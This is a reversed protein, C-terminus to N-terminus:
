KGGSRPAKSKLLEAYINSVEICPLSLPLSSPSILTIYLDLRVYIISFNLRVINVNALIESSRRLTSFHLEFNRKVQKKKM